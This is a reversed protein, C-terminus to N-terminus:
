AAKAMEVAQDMAFQKLKSGGGYWASALRNNVNRGIVHDVLFTVANAANWATGPSYEAGPQTELIELARKASRSLEGEDNDGGRPFVTTFYAKVQEDTIRKSALFEAMEKYGLLKTSAIHLAEKAVDPDFVNRHSYKMKNTVKTGLSQTLTNNCVVRIPTHRIDTSFGYRHFNTFQIYGEIRDGTNLTFDQGTKALAWVIEGNHISGATEMTMSGAKVFEAFFDFAESNQIPEWDDSVVSLLRQDNSRVLAQKGTEKRVGDIEYFTPIKSVTWDLGAVQLMQEPTLCDEVPVGLGHWPIGGSKTYAMMTKGNVIELAHAM